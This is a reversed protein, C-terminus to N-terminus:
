YHVISSSTEWERVVETLYFLFFVSETIFSCDSSFQASLKSRHFDKIKKTSEHWNVWLFYYPKNVHSWDLCWLLSLIIKYWGNSCRLKFFILIFKGDRILHKKCNHCTDHEAKGFLLHIDEILFIFFQGGGTSLNDSFNDFYKRKTYVHKHIVIIRLTNEQSTFSPFDLFNAYCFKKKRSRPYPARCGFFRLLLFTM